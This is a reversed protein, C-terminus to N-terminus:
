HNTTNTGISDGSGLPLIADVYVDGEEDPDGIRMKRIPLPDADVHPALRNDNEVGEDVKEGQSVMENYAGLPDPMKLPAPAMEGIDDRGIRLKRPMEEGPIHHRHKYAIENYNPSTVRHVERGDEKWQERKVGNDVESSYDQMDAVEMANKFRALPGLGYHDLLPTGGFDNLRKVLKVMKKYNDGIQAYQLLNERHTLIARQLMPHIDAKMQAKFRLARLIISPDRALVVEPDLPTRIVNERADKIGLGTPDYYKGSLPEKFVANFTFDRSYADENIPTIPIEQRDMEEHVWHLIQKLGRFEVNIDDIVLHAVGSKSGHDPNPLNEDRAVLYALAISNGRELTTLDADSSEDFPINALENRVIGGSVLLTMDNKQALIGIERLLNDMEAKTSGTEIMKLKRLM